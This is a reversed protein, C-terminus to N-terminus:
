ASDAEAQRQAALELVHPDIDKMEVSAATTVEVGTLAEMLDWESQQWALDHHESCYFFYDTPEASHEVCLAGIAPEKCKEGDIVCDCHLAGPAAPEPPTEEEVRTPRRRPRAKREQSPAEEASPLTRAFLSRMLEPNHLMEDEPTDATTAGNEVLLNVGGVLGSRIQNAEDRSITGAEQAEEIERLLKLGRLAGEAEALSAGPESYRMRLCAQRLFDRLPKVVIAPGVCDVRLDSEGDLKLVKLETGDGEGKMRALATYMGYVTSLVKCLTALATSEKDGRVEISVIDDPLEEELLQSPTTLATLPELVALLAQWRPSFGAIPAAGGRDETVYAMSLKAGFDADYLFSLDFADLVERAKPNGGVTLATRTLEHTFMLVAGADISTGDPLEAAWLDGVSLFGKARDSLVSEVWRIAKLAEVTRM